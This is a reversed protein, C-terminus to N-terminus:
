YEAITVGCEPVRTHAVWRWDAPQDAPRHRRDVRKRRNIRSESIDINMGAADTVSATV